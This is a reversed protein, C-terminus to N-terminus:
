GIFTWAEDQSLPEPADPVLARLQYLRVLAVHDLYRAAVWRALRPILHAFPQELILEVQQGDLRLAGAAHELKQGEAQDRWAQLEEHTEALHFSTEGRKHAVVLFFLPQAESLTELLAVSRELNEPPPEPARLLLRLRRDAKSVARLVRQHAPAETLTELTFSGDIECVMLGRTTHGLAACRRLVGEVRRNLDQLTSGETVPEVLLMPAEGPGKDTAWFWAKAGPHLSQVAEHADSLTGPAAPPLLGEWLEPKDFVYEVKYDRSLVLARAGHLRRLAPREAAAGKAWAAIRALESLGIDEAGFDFVGDEGVQCLGFIPRVGHPGIRGELREKLAHLHPDERLPALQLADLDEVGECFMFWAREGAALGSLQASLLDNMM